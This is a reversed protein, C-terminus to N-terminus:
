RNSDFQEALKYLIWWCVLGIPLIAGTRPGPALYGLVLGVVITIGVIVAVSVWIWQRQHEVNKKKAEYERSLFKAEDIPDPRAELIPDEDSVFWIVPAAHNYALRYEKGSLSLDRSPWESEITASNM